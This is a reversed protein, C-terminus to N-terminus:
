FFRGNAYLWWLKVSFGKLSLWRLSCRFAEEAFVKFCNSPPDGFSLSADVVLVYIEVSRSSQEIWSRNLKADVLRCDAFPPGDVVYAAENSLLMAFKGEVM